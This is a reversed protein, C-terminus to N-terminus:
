QVGFLFPSEMGKRKKRVKVVAKLNLNLNPRMRELCQYRYVHM